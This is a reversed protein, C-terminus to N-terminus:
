RTMRNSVMWARLEDIEDNKLNQKVKNHKMIVYADKKGEKMAGRKKTADDMEKRITTQPMDLQRCIARQSIGYHKTYSNKNSSANGQSAPEPSHVSDLLMTKAVLQRSKTVKARVKDKTRSRSLVKRMNKLVHLAVKIEEPNLGLSAVIARMQNDTLTNLLALRKHKRTGADLM